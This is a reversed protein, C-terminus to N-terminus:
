PTIEEDVPDPSDPLGRHSEPEAHARAEAEAAARREARLADEAAERRAARADLARHLATVLREVVLAIVVALVLAVTVALLHHNEFWAGAVAGIVCSYVAWVFTSALSRHWFKRHPYHVAGAVLNVATRGFPIYRATMLFLLARKNLGSEAAEVAVKGKGERLFRFRETGVTRGILYGVNDGTFAGAWALLAVIWILPRGSSSWLSSLTVIVSESPVAPFFGDFASLVYVAMYIWWADALSLIWDEILNV